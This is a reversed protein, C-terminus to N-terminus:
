KQYAHELEEVDPVMDKLLRLLWYNTPEEVLEKDQASMADMISEMISRHAEPCDECPVVIEIQKKTHNYIVM